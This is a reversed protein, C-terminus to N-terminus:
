DPKLRCFLVATGARGAAQGNAATPVRSSIVRSRRGRTLCKRQRAHNEGRSAALFRPGAGGRSHCLNYTM